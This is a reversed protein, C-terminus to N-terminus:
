FEYSLGISLNLGKKYENLTVKEGTSSERTLRFSPDLLNSANAKLTFHSNFNYSAAFNLTPVGEEMIDNFGGAGVTHIRSSFCNLVLTALLIRDKKAYNYSLDFNAIFPSAGELQSNRAETNRIDLTLNTYIYSANLGASLRNTQETGAGSRDFIHKRIEMEVGGVTAQKGINNYTLLGASNGEDVRGVPNKIHKYFGTLSILEGSTIYYDWKLDVNYNDSPKLNPNGQSAFSINVYQYPSIEKAQPLTYTKSVGLRLSHKANMDYKLNLSPLFYNKIIEVTGPATHQVRYDVAMDVRDMRLGINGSLNKLLQYSAEAFATHIQKRVHYTNADGIAMRFTNNELNAQNYLDDLKVQEMDFLGSVASFNYEVSEFGTDAFRGNYGVTLRNNESRDNLRYTLATKVNIDDETLASFFRKQRNSGTLIYAGKDQQSFYNERRDPELLGTILNYSVGADLTWKGSMKWDTLVQNSLLMNDNTQQRRMFGTYGPSDQYRESNYGYYDGVYQHNAHVLMFNYQLNHKKNIGYIANALVLQNINQSYRNGKQDQWVTGATNSNRVTEETVSYDVSHSAVAFFSLPNNNAGMKFLKGGSVVLGHNVPLSVKSPDLSNSFSFKNELPRQTSAFGFYNSGDQRLFDAGAVSTNVGASVDVGLAYDGALEKSSINIVAGGVDSYDRAGFVKSVSINKIVDTGFFDLSINKYEPDESPIPFGNLMTVNYRDGLGRVFVNKVGEQRSVGSVQAVAAQANGIGKRSLERAGVAQTALLSQKQVAILANESERNARATVVVEEFITEDASLILIVEIEKGREVVIGEKKLPLYGLYSSVLTHTGAPVNPIIFNGASDTASGNATGEIMVTAYMLAENTKSDVVVGKVTGTQAFAAAAVFSFLIGLVNRKVTRLQLLKVQM